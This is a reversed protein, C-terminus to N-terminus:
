ASGIIINENDCGLSSSICKLNKDFVYKNTKINKKNGEIVTKVTYTIKNNKFDYSLNDGITYDLQSRDNYSSSLMFGVDVVKNTKVNYIYAHANSGYILRNKLDSTNYLEEVKFSIYEKNSEFFSVYIKAGFPITTLFM